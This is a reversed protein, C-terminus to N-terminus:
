QPPPGPRESPGGTAPPGMVSVAAAVFVGEKVAGEVRVTEGVQLDALTVPERRRRFTTNEDAVFTHAANDIQSQVTVQTEKVETVKGM